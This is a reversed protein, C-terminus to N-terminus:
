EGDEEPRLVVTVGDPQAGGLVSIPLDADAFGEARVVLRFEGAPLPVGFVMGDNRKWDNAHVADHRGNWNRKYRFTSQYTSFQLVWTEVDPALISKGREVRGTWSCLLDGDLRTLEGEYNGSFPVRQGDDREVVLWGKLIAEGEGPCSTPLVLEYSSPGRGEPIDHTSPVRLGAPFVDVVFAGCPLNSLSAKGEEDTFTWNRWFTDSRRTFLPEGETTRLYVCARVAPRMHEDIVRLTVHRQLDLQPDIQGQEGLADPLDFVRPAYGKSWAFLKWGTAPSGEASRSSVPLVLKYRGKRVDVGANRELHSPDAAAVLGKGRVVNGEGDVIQGSLVLEDQGATLSLEIAEGYWEREMLRVVRRPKPMWLKFEIPGHALGSLTVEGEHNTLGVDHPQVTRLAHDEAADVAALQESGPLSRARVNVSRVPRGAADTIRVVLDGSASLPISMQSERQSAVLSRVQACSGPRTACVAVAAGLELGQCEFVGPSLSRVEPAASNPMARIRISADPLPRDAADVVRVVLRAPDPLAVTVDEDGTVTGVLARPHDPHEVALRYAGPALGALEFSGDGASRVVGYTKEVYTVSAQGTYVLESESHILISRVLADPVAGGAADRVTGRISTAQVLEFSVGAVVSPAGVRLQLTEKSVRGPLRAHLRTPLTVGHVVFVGEANSRGVVHELADEDRLEPKKWLRGLVIDAGEVPTGDAWGVRGTVTLGSLPAETVPLPERLEEPDRGAAPRLIDPTQAIVSERPAEAVIERSSEPRVAVMVLLMVGVVATLSAAAASGLKVPAPADLAGSRRPGRWRFALSALLVTSWYRRGVHRDLYDRLTAQARQLRTRVTNVPVGTMSAIRRPPHGEYYRLLVVTRYPEGLTQIAKGVAEAVVLRATEDEHQAEEKNRAAHLEKKRRAVDERVSDVAKNRVVRSLWARPRRAHGHKKLLDLWVQQALDESDHYDKALSRALKRVFADQEAPSPDFSSSVPSVGRFVRPLGSGGM